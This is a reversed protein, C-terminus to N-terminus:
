LRSVKDLIVKLKDKQFPKLIYAKAGADLADHVMQEQGHSTVMIIRATPFSEIITRTAEIGNMDPMTVDMTVIDPRCAAYKAVADKGTNATQVVQHGLDELMRKIKKITIISDDVVMVNLSTM